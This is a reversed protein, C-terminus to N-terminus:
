APLAHLSVCACDCARKHEGRLRCAVVSAAHDGGQVYDLIALQGHLACRVRRRRHHEGRLYTGLWVSFLLLAETLLWYLPTRM